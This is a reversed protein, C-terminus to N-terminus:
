RFLRIMTAVFSDLMAKFKVVGKDGVQIDASTKAEGNISVKTDPNVTLIKEVGTVNNKVTISTDTKATVEGFVKEPRIVVMIHDAELANNDQIEGRIMVKDGVKIDVLSIETKGNTTIKTDADVAVVVVGNSVMPRIHAGGQVNVILSGVGVTNVTGNLTFKDEGRSKLIDVLGGLRLKANGEAKIRAETKIDSEVGDKGNDDAFAVSATFMLATLSLMAITKRM